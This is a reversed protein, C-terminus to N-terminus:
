AMRFTKATCNTVYIYNVSPTVQTITTGFSNVTKGIVTSSGQCLTQQIGGGNLLQVINVMDASISGRPALVHPVTQRIMEWQEISAGTETLGSICDAAM